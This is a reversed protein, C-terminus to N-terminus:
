HKWWSLGLLTLNFGIPHFIQLNSYLLTLGCSVIFLSLPFVINNYDNFHLSKLWMSRLPKSAYSLFRNGLTRESRQCELFVQQSFATDSYRKSVIELNRLDQDSLNNKVWWAIKCRYNFSYLRESNIWSFKTKHINYTWFQTFM